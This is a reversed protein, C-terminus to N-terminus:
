IAGLERDLENVAADHAATRQCSTATPVGKEAAVTTAENYRRCCEVSTVRRGGIRWSQLKIGYRNRTQCWRLVTSLHPRRGTEKHVAEVLPLGVENEPIRMECSEMADHLLVVRLPAFM